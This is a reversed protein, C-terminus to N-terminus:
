LWGVQIKKDSVNNLVELMSPLLKEANSLCYTRFGPNRLILLYLLLPYGPEKYM